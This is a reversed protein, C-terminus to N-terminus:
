VLLWRVFHPPVSSCFQPSLKSKLHCTQLLIQNLLGLLFLNRSEAHKISVALRTDQHAPGGWHQFDEQGAQRADARLYWKSSGEWRCRESGVHPGLFSLIVASFTTLPNDGHLGFPRFGCAPVASPGRSTGEPSGALQGPRATSVGDWAGARRVPLM